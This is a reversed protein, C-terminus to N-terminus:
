APNAGAIRLRTVNPSLVVIVISKLSARAPSVSVSVTVPSAGSISVVCDFNADVISVVSTWLRGIIVRLTL